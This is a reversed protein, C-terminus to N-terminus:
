AFCHRKIITTNADVNDLKTAATHRCDHQLHSIGLKTMLPTFQRQIYNNYFFKKGTPSQVLYEQKCDDTWGITVRACWVRRRNGGLKFVSDYDNPNKM